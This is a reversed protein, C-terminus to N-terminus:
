PHGGQALRRRFLFTAAVACALGTLVLKTTAILWAGDPESWLMERATHNFWHTPFFTALQQIFDPLGQTPFMSGGLMAMSLIFINNFIDARREQGALAALLGMLGASCLSYGVLLVVFPLPRPWTVGFLLGGGGCLIAAGLAVIVVAVIIKACIFLFLNENATRYREFTRFRLERYLDRMGHDALYLLFMSAMGILIYPLVYPDGGSSNADAADNARKAHTYTVLPPTLVDKIAELRQGTETLRTGIAQLDFDVEEPDNLYASWARLDDALVRAVGNLGTVLTRLAEEVLAPYMGQAPNKILELALDSEGSLYGRTFGRPIVIIASIEGDTVLDLAEDRPLFRADIHEALQDNTAANRLFRTLVSDDEDVVALKIRGFGGGGSGGSAFGGFAMGILATIVLPVAIMLLVYLPNRRIRLLDKALLTRLM